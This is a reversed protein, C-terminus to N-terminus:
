GVKDKQPCELLKSFLPGIAEPVVKFYVNEWSSDKDHLKSAGRCISDIVSIAGLKSSPSSKEIYEAICLVV